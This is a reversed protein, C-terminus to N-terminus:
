KLKEGSTNLKREYKQDGVWLTLKDGEFKLYEAKGPAAPTLVGCL